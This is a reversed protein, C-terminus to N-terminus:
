KLRFSVLLRSACAVASKVHLGSLLKSVGVVVLESLACIFLLV